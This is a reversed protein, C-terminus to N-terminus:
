KQPTRCSTAMLSSTIKRRLARASPTVSESIRCARSEPRRTRIAAPAYTESSRKAASSAGASCRARMAAARCDRGGPMTTLWVDAASRCPMSRPSRESSRTCRVLFWAEPPPRVAPTWTWAVRNSAVSTTARPPSATVEGARVTTSVARMEVNSWATTTPSEASCRRSTVSSSIRSSTPRAPGRLPMAVARRAAPKRSPRLSLGPSDSLRMRIRWCSRGGGSSWCTSWSSVPAKRPRASKKQVSHPTTPSNSPMPFVADVTVLRCDGDM